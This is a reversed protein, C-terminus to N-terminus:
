ESLFGKVAEILERAGVPKSIYGVCGAKLARTQDSLMALASFAVIKTDKTSPDGLIRRTAELGDMGPLQLDMLVLDPHNKKNVDIAEQGSSAAIVKFGGRKLITTVLDLHVAQNDVILVTRRMQRRGPRM